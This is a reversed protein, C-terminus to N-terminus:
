QNALFLPIAPFMLILGLVIFDVVVFPAIGRFSTRLDVGSAASTVYVNLGLPPTVMGIEATKVMVVGWWIPDYGLGVMLPTTIPATLIVIAAQDMITGLLVYVVVITLMIMAPTMGADLIYNLMEDTVRSFSIFFGFMHASIVITMIMATTRLANGIATTAKFWNLRRLYLCILLAGFAGIASIETPTAIGTYLSTFIIVVLLGVPWVRSRQESNALAEEKERDPGLSPKVWLVISVTLIYGAATMLGPIVGALFLKGISYETILGFLVFAVSPPIMMALTGSIAISGVALSPAYGAKRMTPYASRTITAATATSSGSAAALITGAAICAMAMGGRVRRLARNCALMLDQTVAGASLFEAMLLFMPVTLFAHNTVTDHVVNQALTAIVGIPVLAVLSFIGALGLAFGVPVGLVILGVLLCTAIIFAM